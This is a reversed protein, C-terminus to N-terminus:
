LASGPGPARDVAIQAGGDGLLLWLRTLDEILQERPMAINGDLWDLVVRGLTGVLASSTLETIPDDSPAESHVSRAHRGIADALRRQADSRHQALAPSSGMEGFLLQAREPEDTMWRIIEGLTAQVLTPLPAHPDVRSAVELLEGVLADVLAQALEDLDSFSEYFYRKNVGARRCLVEVTLSRWGDAAIAQQAAVLLAARRAASRQSPTQGAYPREAASM